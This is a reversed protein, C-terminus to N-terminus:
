LIGWDGNQARIGLSGIIFFKRAFFFSTKRLFHIFFIKTFFCTKEWFFKWLIMFICISGKILNMIGIRGVKNIKLEM